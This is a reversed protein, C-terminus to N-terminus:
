KISIAFGGGSAAQLKKLVTKSTVKRTTIVYNEPNNDWAIGKADAYITATYTKGPTLFDLSIDTTHGAEAATCGIYWEDAGKAKRATM